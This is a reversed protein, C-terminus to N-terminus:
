IGSLVGARRGDAMGASKSSQYHRYAVRLIADMGGPRTRCFVIM